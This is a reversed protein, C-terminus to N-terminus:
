LTVGSKAAVFVEGTAIDSSLAGRIILQYVRGNFPLTANNRRGLYLPYAAGFNGGGPAVNAIGSTNVVGNVRAIVALPVTAASTDLQAAVVNTIPATFTAPNYGGTGTAGRARIGYNAGSEPASIYFSGNNTGANASLELLMATTDVDKRVGVVLTMKNSASFDIASTLLSDDSGDFDLYYRGTGDQQLLPRSTSTSQTAHNGRGSKDSIRGVPDGAATVPITGAADQFMSSLDSPDYWVGQEGSAFWASAPNWAPASNAQRDFSLAGEPRWLPRFQPRPFM